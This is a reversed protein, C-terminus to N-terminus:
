SLRTSRNHYMCTIIQLGMSGGLAIQADWIDTASISQRPPLLAIKLLKHDLTRPNLACILVIAFISTSTSLSGYCRGTGTNWARLEGNESASVLVDDRLFLLCSSAMASEPRQLTHLANTEVNSSTQPVSPLRFTQLGSERDELAITNTDSLAM